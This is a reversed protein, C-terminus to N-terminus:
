EGRAKDLPGRFDLEKGRIPLKVELGPDKMTYKALNAMHYYRQGPGQQRGLLLKLNTSMRITNQQLPDPNVLSMTGVTSFEDQFSYKCPRFNLEDWAFKIDEFAYEM